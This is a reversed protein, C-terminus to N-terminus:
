GCALRALQAMMFWFNRAPGRINEPCIGLRTQWGKSLKRYDATEGLFIQNLIFRV